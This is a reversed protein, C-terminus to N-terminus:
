RVSITSSWPYLALRLWLRSRLRPAQQSTPCSCCHRRSVCFWLILKLILPGNWYLYILKGTYANGNDLYAPRVVTKDTYHTDSYWSLCGNLCEWNLWVLQIESYGLHRVHVIKMLYWYFNTPRQITASCYTYWLMLYSIAACYKLMGTWIGMKFPFDARQIVYLMNAFKSLKGFWTLEGAM